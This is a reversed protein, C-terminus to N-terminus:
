VSGVGRDIGPGMTTAGAVRAFVAALGQGADICRTATLALVLTVAAAVGLSVATPLHHLGPHPCGPRKPSTRSPTPSPSWKAGVGRDVVGALQLSAPGWM